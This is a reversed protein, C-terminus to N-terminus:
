KAPSIPIRRVEKEPFGVFGVDLSEYGVKRIIFKGDVVDGPRVLLLRDGAVIAAVPAKVSGFTGTFQFAIAPPQPPPPPPPPPLAGVFRPDGPPIYAPRPKPPPPPPPEKFKFLDRTVDSSGEPRRSFASVDIDPVADPSVTKAQPGRGFSRGTELDATASSPAAPSAAPREGSPGAPKARLVLLLFLIALVGLLGAQKARKTM